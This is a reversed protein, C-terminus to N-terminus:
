LLWHLGGDSECLFLLKVWILTPAHYASRSLSRGAEISRTLNQDHCCCHERPLDPEQEGHRRQHHAGDDSHGLL